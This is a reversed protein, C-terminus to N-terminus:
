NHRYCVCKLNEFGLEHALNKNIKCDEETGNYSGWQEEPTDLWLDLWETLNRVQSNGPGAYQNLAWSVLTKEGVLATFERPDNEAMEEWYERAKEGAIKSSEAIYYDMGGELELLPLQGYSFINKIKHIEDDIIMLFM